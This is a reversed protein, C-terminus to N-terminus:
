IKRIKLMFNFLKSTLFTACDSKQFLNKVPGFNPKQPKSEAM